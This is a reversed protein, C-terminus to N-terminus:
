NPVLPHKGFPIKFELEHGSEIPHHKASAYVAEMETIVPPQLDNSSPSVSSATPDKKMFATIPTQKNKM